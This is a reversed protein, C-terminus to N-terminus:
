VLRYGVGWVNVVFGDAGVTDLKRRLRSAHSDLTRAGQDTRRNWITRLLERKSCVTTPKRALHVLLEYELRCLEVEVGGFSVTHAATDIALSGVSLTPADVADEARRLLARLRARLELYSVPAAIFDDAGADFARLLELQGAGSGIVVAPLRSDWFPRTTDLESGSRIEELLDLAGRPQELEGLVVARILHMRALTRAHEAGSALVAQFRDACLQEVLERALSRNSEVFLIASEQPGDDVEISPDSRAHKASM